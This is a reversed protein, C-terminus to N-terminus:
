GEPQLRSFANSFSCSHSARFSATVETWSSAGPSLHSGQLHFSTSAFSIDGAGTGPAVHSPSLQTKWVPKPSHSPLSLPAHPNAINGRPRQAAAGGVRMGPSCDPFLLSVTNDAGGGGCHDSGAGHGLADPPLGEGAPIGVTSMSCVCSCSIELCRTRLRWM